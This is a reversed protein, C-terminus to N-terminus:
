LPTPPVSAGPEDRAAPPDPRLHLRAVDRRDLRALCPLVAADLTEVAREARLAQVSLPESVQALRLDHDFVPAPFVVGPPWVATETVPSRGSEAGLRSRGHVRDM